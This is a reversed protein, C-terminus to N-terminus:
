PEYRLRCDPCYLKHIYAEVADLPAARGDILNWELETITGASVLGGEANVPTFYEVDVVLANGCFICYVKNPRNRIALTM